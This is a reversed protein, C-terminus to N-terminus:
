NCSFDKGDSLSADNAAGTTQDIGVGAGPALLALVANGNQRKSGAEVFGQYGGLFDLVFVFVQTNRDGVGSEHLWQVHVEDPLQRVVVTDNDGDLLTANSSESVVDQM